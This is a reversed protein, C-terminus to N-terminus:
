PKPCLLLVLDPYRLAQRVRSRLMVTLTQTLISTAQSQYKDARPPLALDLHPQLVRQQARERRLAQSPPSAASPPLRCPDRKQLPLAVTGRHLSALWQKSSHESDRSCRTQLTDYRLPQLVKSRSLALCHRPDPPSRILSGTVPRCDRAATTLPSSYFHELLRAQGLILHEVRSFVSQLAYSVCKM